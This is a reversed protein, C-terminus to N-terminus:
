CIGPTYPSWGVRSGRPAARPAARPEDAWMSGRDEGQGRLHKHPLQALCIPLALPARNVPQLVVFGAVLEVVDHLLPSGAAKPSSERCGLGALRRRTRGEEPIRRRHTNQTNQHFHTNRPQLLTLSCPTGPQGLHSQSGRSPASLEAGEGGGRGSGHKGQHAVPPHITGFSNTFKTATLSPLSSAGTWCCRSRVTGTHLAFHCQTVPAAVVLETTQAGPLQGIQPNTGEKELWLM